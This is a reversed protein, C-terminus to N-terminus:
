LKQISKVQGIYKKYKRGENDEVYSLPKGLKDTVEKYFKERKEESTNTPNLNITVKNNSKYVPEKIKLTYVGPKATEYITFDGENFLFAATTKVAKVKDKTFTSFKNTVDEWVKHAKDYKAKSTYPINSLCLYDELYSNFEKSSYDANDSDKWWSHIVNELTASSVNYKNKLSTFAKDRKRVCQEKM